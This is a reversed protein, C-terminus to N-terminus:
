NERPKSALSVFLLEADHPGRRVLAVVQPAALALLEDDGVERYNGAVTHVFSTMEIPRVIQEPLLPRSTVIEEPSLPRTTVWAFKAAPLHTQAFEPKRQKPGLYHIGAAASVLLVATVVSVRRVTRMQRRRRALRLVHELSAGRFGGEVEGALVDDLLRENDTREKM